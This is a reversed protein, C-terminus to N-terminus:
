QMNSKYRDYAANYVETLKELGQTNLEDLMTQYADLPEEGMVIKAEMQQQYTYLSTEILTIEELEEKTFFLTPTGPRLYPAVNQEMADKFAADEPTKHEQSKVNSFQMSGQFTNCPAIVRCIWDWIGTYKSTDYSYTYETKDENWVRGGEGDWEGEVPGVLVEAGEETYIYDFYRASIEPNKNVSTLFIQPNTGMNEGYWAKETFVDSTFPEPVVYQGYVEPDTTNLLVFHAAYTYAGLMMNQGKAKMQADNQTYYEQDLLKEAYLQRMNELYTKYQPHQAVFVLQNDVVQWNDKSGWGFSIGLPGAVFPDVSYGSYGSLPIEDQEGNGNPDQDRFAVLVDYLEDYTQPMSLGLKDIWAKNIFARAGPTEASGGTFTASIGYMNGDPAYMKASEPFKSMWEKYNPMYENVLDSLPIIQQANSYTIIDNNSIEGIIIDPLENSAFMLNRREAWQDSSLKEIEFNVNTLKDMEKFFYMDASTDEAFEAPVNMVLKQTVKENVIPLGTTNFNSSAEDESTVASSADGTSTNSEGESCATISGALLIALLSSLIRATNKM